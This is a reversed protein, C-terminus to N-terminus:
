RIPSCNGCVGVSSDSEAKARELVYSGWSSSCNPNNRSERLYRNSHELKEIAKDVRDLTEQGGRSDYAGRFIPELAEITEIPVHDSTVSKRQPYLAIDAASKAVDDLYQQLQDNGRYESIHHNEPLTRIDSQLKRFTNAITTTDTAEGNEKTLIESLVRSNPMQGCHNLTARIAKITIKKKYSFAKSHEAKDLLRVIDLYDTDSIYPEYYTLPGAAKAMEVDYILHRATASVHKSMAAKGSYILYNIPTQMNPHLRLASGIIGDIHSKKDNLINFAGMAASGLDAPTQWVKKGKAKVNTEMKSSMVELIPHVIADIAFAAVKADQRNRLIQEVQRPNILALCGHKGAFKVEGLEEQRATHIIEILRTVVRDFMEIVQKNFQLNPDLTDNGEMTNNREQHSKPLKRLELYSSKEQKSLAKAGNLIDSVM